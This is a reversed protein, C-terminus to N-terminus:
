LYSPHVLTPMERYDSAQPPKASYMTINVGALPLGLSIKGSPLNNEWREADIFAAPGCRHSESRAIDNLLHRQLSM